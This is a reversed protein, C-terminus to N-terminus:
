SYLVYGAMGACAIILVSTYPHNISYLANLSAVFIVAGTPQAVSTRLLHLGTVCILGVSTAAIGDMVHALAGSSDVLRGLQNHLLIPLTMAPLFMGLTMLTAGVIGNAGYGIMTAFMVLPTPLVSAVAISDLFLQSAVWHGATVAEYQMFPIATYAGGFTVLGGLLGVIFQAGPTCGLWRAIGIGQPIVNELPGTLAIAVIVAAIGLAAVAGAAVTQRRQALLYFIAMHAKIVFFNLGLVSEFASLAVVALLRPDAEGGGHRRCVSDGIKHASRFVMACVAPQLGAFVAQVVESQIGYVQYFAAFSLMLCFGPLIFGLGGLIGGFSGGALIGFYCALETAEPGPLVQYAAYVRAFREPSIWKENTVLEDKMISIQAMPGGFARLGFSL